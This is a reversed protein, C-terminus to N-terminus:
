GQAPQSLKAKVFIWPAGLSIWFGALGYRVYRFIFAIM